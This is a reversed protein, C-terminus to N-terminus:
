DILEAEFLSVDIQNESSGSTDWLTYGIHYGGSEDSVDFIQEEETWSEDQKFRERSDWNFFSQEPDDPEIGIEFVADSDATGSSLFRISSINTLDYKDVTGIVYNLGSDTLGLNEAFLRDSQKELTTRSTDETYHETWDDELDGQGNWYIASDPIGSFVVTGDPAVIERAEVGGPMILEEGLGGDPLEITPESETLGFVDDDITLEWGDSVDESAYNSLNAEDAIVGGVSEASASGRGAGVLGAAALARLTQRRSVPWAVEHAPTPDLEGIVQQVRDDSM